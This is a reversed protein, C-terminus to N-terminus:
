NALFLQIIKLLVQHLLITTISEPCHKDRTRLISRQFWLYIISFYYWFRWPTFTNCMVAESHFMIDSVFYSFSYKSNVHVYNPQNFKWWTLDELVSKRLVCKTNSHSYWNIIPVQRQPWMGCYVVSIESKLVTSFFFCESTTWPNFAESSSVYHYNISLM